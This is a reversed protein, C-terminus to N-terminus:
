EFFPVPERLEASRSEACSVRVALASEEPMCHTPPTGNKLCDAFYHVENRMADGKAFIADFEENEMPDFVGDDTSVTVKEGAGAVSAREFAADFGSTFAFTAVQRWSCSATVSVIDPYRYLTTCFRDNGATDVSLPKGLLSLILDTYHIHMDRIVGGSRSSDKLWSGVSWGPVASERFLRLSVLRGFRQDQLCHRLYEYSKEFRECHAVMLLTKTETALACLEEAQAENPTFPKECLVPIREQLARKAMPYHLDLPVCLDVCDPRLALVEEYDTLFRGGVEEALRVGTETDTSCLIIKEAITKWVELHTRGMFGTGIVAVTM